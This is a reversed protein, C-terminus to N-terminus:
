IKPVVKKQPCFLPSAAFGHQTEQVALAWSTRSKRLATIKCGLQGPRRTDVESRSGCPDVLTRNVILLERLLM